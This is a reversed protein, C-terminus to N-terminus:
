IRHFEYQTETHDIGLRKEIRKYLAKIKDDSLDDNDPRALEEFANQYNQISIFTISEETVNGKKYQNIMSEEPLMWKIDILDDKPYYKFLMSNPQPMPKKLRSQYIFRHTPVDYFSPFKKQYNKHVISNYMDEQWMSYKEDVGIDKKHCFIYFPMKEFEPPRLKICDQIGEEITQQQTKKIYLLRDHAELVNVKM